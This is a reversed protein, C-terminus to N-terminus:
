AAKTSKRLPTVKSRREAWGKKMAESIRRRGAASRGRRHKTSPQATSGEESIKRKQSRRAGIGELAAIALNLDDREKKLESVIPGLIVSERELTESLGRFNALGTLADTAALHRLHTAAGGLKKESRKLFRYLSTRGIGLLQAARVRSGECADLVRRIHQRRIEELPLPRWSDEASARQATIDEPSSRACVRHEKAISRAVLSQHNRHTENQALHAM